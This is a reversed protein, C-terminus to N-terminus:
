PIQVIAADDLYMIMDSPGRNSSWSLVVTAFSAPATFTLSERFWTNSPRSDSNVSIYFSRGPFTVQLGTGAYAVNNSSYWWYSMEYNKGPEIKITQTLRLLGGDLNRFDIKYSNSSGSHPRDNSVAGIVNGPTSTITPVWPGVEDSEFGGNAIV